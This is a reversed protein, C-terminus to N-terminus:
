YLTDLAVAEMCRRDDKTIKIWRKSAVAFGYRLNTIQIIAINDQNLIAIKTYNAKNKTYKKKM